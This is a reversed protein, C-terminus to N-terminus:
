IDGPAFGVEAWGLGWRTKKRRWGGGGAGYPARRPRAAALGAGGELQERGGSDRYPHLGRGGPCGRVEM